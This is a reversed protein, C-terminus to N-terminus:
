FFDRSQSAAGVEPEKTCSVTCHECSQLVDTNEPSYTVYLRMYSLGPVSSGQIWLHKLLKLKWDISEKGCVSSIRM